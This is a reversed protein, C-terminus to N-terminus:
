FNLTRVYDDSKIIINLNISNSLYVHRAGNLQGTAITGSVPPLNQKFYNGNNNLKISLFKQRIKKAVYINM